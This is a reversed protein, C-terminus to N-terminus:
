INVKNTLERLLERSIDKANVGYNDGTIYITIGGRMKGISSDVDKMALLTDRPDTEIVQGNPRIIADGVKKNQTISFGPANTNKTFSFGVQASRASEAKRTAEELEALKNIEDSIQQMKLDHYETTAKKLETYFVDKLFTLQEQYSKNYFDNIRNQSETVSLEHVRTLEVQAKLANDKATVEAEYLVKLKDLKAQEFEIGLPNVGEVKKGARLEALKLEQDAIESALKKAAESQANIGKEIDVGFFSNLAKSASDVAYETEKVKDGLDSFAQELNKLTNVKADEIAKAEELQKKYESNAMSFVTIAAGIALIAWGIPGLAAEAIGAAVALEKLTKILVPMQAILTTVQLGMSIFTGIVQNNARAINNQAITLGRSAAELQREANKIDDTTSSADNTVKKLRYEAEALRDQAGTVRETANELRLQLNTYSSFINDVTSAAQGLVLLSGMQETFSKSTIETQKQISKNGKELTSQIREFGATMEDKLSVLIQIEADAM